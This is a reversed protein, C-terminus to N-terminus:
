QSQKEVYYTLQLPVMDFSFTGVGDANYDQPFNPYGLDRVNNRVISNSLYAYGDQINLGSWTVGPSAFDNVIWEFYTEYTSGQNFTLGALLRWNNDSLWKTASKMESSVPFSGPTWYQYTVGSVPDTLVGGSHQGTFGLRGQNPFGSLSYTLPEQQRFNAGLFGQPGSVDGCLGPTVFSGDVTGGTQMITTVIYRNISYPRDTVLWSNIQGGPYEASIGVPVLKSTPASIWNNIAVPFGSPDEVASPFKWGDTEYFFLNKQPIPKGADNFRTKFAGKSNQLYPGFHNYENFGQQGGSVTLLAASGFTTDHQLDVNWIAMGDTRSADSFFMGQYEGYHGTVLLDCIMTNWVNGDPADGELASGDAATGGFDSEWFTQTIDFHPDRAYKTGGAAVWGRHATGGAYPTPNTASTVGTFYGVDIAPRDHPSATKRLAFLYDPWFGQNAMGEYANKMAQTPDLVKWEAVSGFYAGTLTVGTGPTGVNPGSVGASTGLSNYFVDLSGRGDENDWVDASFGAGTYTSASSGKPCFEFLGKGVSSYPYLLAGIDHCKVNYLLQANCVDNQTPPLIFNSDVVERTTSATAYRFDCGYFFTPSGVSTDKVEVRLGAHSGNNAQDELIGFQGGHTDPKADIGLDCNIFVYRAEPISNISLWSSETTVDPRFDVNKFICGINSTGNGGTTNWIIMGGEIVPLQEFETHGSDKVVFQGVKIANTDATYGNIIRVKHANSGAASYVSTPTLKAAGASLGTNSDSGTPGIYYTTLGKELICGRRNPYIGAGYTAGTYPPDDSARFGYLNAAETTDKYATGQLINVRGVKPFVKARIEGVDASLGSPLQVSWINEQGTNPDTTKTGLVAPGNNLYFEVKAVGNLETGGTLAGGYPHTLVRIEQGGTFEDIIPSLFRSPYRYYLQPNDTTNGQSPETDINFDTWAAPNTSGEVLINMRKNISTFEHANLKTGSSGKTVSWIPTRPYRCIPLGAMSDFPQGTLGAATNTGLESQLSLGPVSVVLMDMHAKDQIDYQQSVNGMSGWGYRVCDGNELPVNYTVTCQQGDFTVSYDGSVGIYNEWGNAENPADNWGPGRVDVRLNKSNPTGGRYVEFGIVEPKDRQPPLLGSLSGTGLSVGSAIDRASGLHIGTAGGQRYTTLKYESPLASGDLDTATYTLRTGDSSIDTLSLVPVPLEMTATVGGGIMMAKAVSLAMYQAILINGHLGNVDLQYPSDSISGGKAPHGLDGYYGASEWDGFQNLATDWTWAKSIYRWPNTSASDDFILGSSQTCQRYKSQTSSADLTYSGGATPGTFGVNYQVMMQTEANIRIIDASVGTWVNIPEFAAGEANAAPSNTPIPGMVSIQTRDRRYIGRGTTTGSQTLDFFCHDWTEGGSQDATSGSGLVYPTNDFYVGAYFPATQTFLNNAKGADSNYWCEDQLGIYSNRQRLWETTYVVQRWDRGSNGDYGMQSRSTGAWQHDVMMVPYDPILRKFLNGAAVIPTRSPDTQVNATEYNSQTIFKRELQTPMSSWDISSKSATDYWLVQMHNDELVKATGAMSERYWMHERESQSLSAFVIGPRFRNTSTSTVSTNNKDRIQVNWWAGTGGSQATWDTIPSATFPVDTATFNEGNWTLNPVDKWSTTGHDYYQLDPTGAGTSGTGGLTLYSKNTGVAFGADTIIKDDGNFPDELTLSSLVLTQAKTETDLTVGGVNFIAATISVSSSGPAIYFQYTATPHYLIPM